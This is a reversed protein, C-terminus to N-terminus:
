ITLFRKPKTARTNANAGKGKVEGALGDPHATIILKFFKSGYKKKIEEAVPKFSDMCREEGALHVIFKNLPYDSAALSEFTSDLVEFPEGATPLLIYHYIRQWNPIQQVRDLWHILHERKYERWSFNLLLNFHVIRFLWLLDFAIIFCIVWIPIIFSLIISLLFMTWIM